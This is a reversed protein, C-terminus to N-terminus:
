LFVDGKKMVWGHLECRAVLSVNGMVFKRYRYATSAPELGGSDDEDFFPNPEFKRRM